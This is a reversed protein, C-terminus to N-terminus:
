TSVQLQRLEEFRLSLLDLAYQELGSGLGCWPAQKETPVLVGPIVTDSRRLVRLGVNRVEGTARLGAQMWNFVLIKQCFEDSTDEVTM